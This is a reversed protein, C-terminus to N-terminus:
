HFLTSLFLVSIGRQHQNRATLTSLIRFDALAKAFDAKTIYCLQSVCPQWLYLTLHILDYKQSKLSNDFFTQFM